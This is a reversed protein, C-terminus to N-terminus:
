IAYRAGRLDGDKRPETGNNFRGILLRSIEHFASAISVLFLESAESQIQRLQQSRVDVMTSPLIWASKNDIMAQRPFLHKRGASFIKKADDVFGPSYTNIGQHQNNAPSQRLVAALATGLDRKEENLLNTWAGPNTKDLGSKFKGTFDLVGHDLLTWIWVFAIDGVSTEFDTCARVYRPHYKSTSRADGVAELCDYMASTTMKHIEPSYPMTWLSHRGFGSHTTNTGGQSLERNDPFYAMVWQGAQIYKSGNNTVTIIGGDFINFEEAENDKTGSTVIGWVHINSQIEARTQTASGILNISSLAEVSINQDRDDESRLLYSSSGMRSVDSFAIEGTHVQKYSLAYTGQPAPIYPNTNSQLSEIHDTARRGNLIVGGHEYIPNKRNEMNFTHGNSDGDYRDSMTHQSTHSHTRRHACFESKQGIM